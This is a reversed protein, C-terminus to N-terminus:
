PLSYKAQEYSAHAIEDINTVLSWQQVLASDPSKSHQENNELQPTQQEPPSMPNTASEQRQIGTEEFDTEFGPM